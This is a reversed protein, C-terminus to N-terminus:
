FSDHPKELDEKWAKIELLSMAVRERTDTDIWSCGHWGNPSAFNWNEGITGPMTPISEFKRTEPYAYGLQYHTARHGQEDLYEILEYSDISFSGKVVQHWQGLAFISTIRHTLIALSM